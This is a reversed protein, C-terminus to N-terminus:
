IKYTRYNGYRTIVTTGVFHDILEHRSGDFDLFDEHLLKRQLVRSCVDLQLTMQHNLMILTFKHGRLVNLGAAELNYYEEQMEPQLRGLLQNKEFFQGAKGLECVNNQRM